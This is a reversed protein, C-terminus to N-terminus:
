CICVVMHLGKFNTKKLATIGKKVAGYFGAVGPPAAFDTPHQLRLVEDRELQNAVLQGKTEIEECASELGDFSKADGVTSGLSPAFGQDEAFNAKMKKTVRKKVRNETDGFEVNM